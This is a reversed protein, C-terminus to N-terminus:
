SSIMIIVQTPTPKCLYLTEVKVIWQVSNANTWFISLSNKTFTNRARSGLQSEALRPFSKIEISCSEITFTQMAEKKLWPHSAEIAQPTRRKRVSKPGTHSTFLTRETNSSFRSPSTTRHYSRKTKTLEQPKHLDKSNQYHLVWEAAERVAKSLHM